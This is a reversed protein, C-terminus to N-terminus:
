RLRRLAPNMTSTRVWHGEFHREVDLDRRWGFAAFMRAWWEWGEHIRHHDVGVHPSVSVFNAISALLLSGERTHRGINDMLMQLPAGHEIHEFLEWATVVDFRHPDQSIDGEVSRVTFPRTIDATFLHHPITAWEARDHKLSYDSGEIGIADVNEDLMDKVFGGGSCGLDMVSFATTPFYSLLKANFSANRSNDQATGFPYLHDLSDFAVPYDTTLSFIASM